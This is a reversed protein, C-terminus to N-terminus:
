LLQGLNPYLPYLATRAIAPKGTQRQMRQHILVLDKMAQARSKKSDGKKWGDQATPVKAKIPNKLSPAHENNGPSLGLYAQFWNEGAPEAPSTWNINNAAVKRNVVDVLRM